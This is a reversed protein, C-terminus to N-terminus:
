YKVLKLELIFEVNTNRCASRALCTLINKLNKLNQLNTFM